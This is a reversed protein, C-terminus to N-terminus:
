RSGTVGVKKWLPTMNVVRGTDMAKDIGLCTVVSKLGDDLTTPMPSGKLMSDKLEGLMVTDAGGHGGRTHKPEILRPHEQYGIRRVEITRGALRATGETGCIYMRREGIATSCNTHFTARVGNAFEMIAVQNDVIDKRATFPNANGGVRNWMSFPAQGRPPKGVSTMYHRNRPVFYDCGGFSAVRRPLSGTMWHALDIDHCCKELLHSGANKRWRRWDGHIFGGHAFHITENFEMSVIHGIVGDEILQRLTRYDPRYRLPFGVCFLSSSKEHARRMALCDALTTALPKECFVHKGARLAAVAHDRHCCNWSGIFVWDVDPDRVLKRYDKYVRVHPEFTERASAVSKPNTDCVAAVEVDSGPRCLTRLLSQIRSGCGIVGIGKRNKM